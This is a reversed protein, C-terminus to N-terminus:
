EYNLVFISIFLRLINLKEIKKYVLKNVVDEIQDDQRQKLM